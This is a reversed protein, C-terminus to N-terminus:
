SRGSNRRKIFDIIPSVFLYVGLLIFLFLIVGVFSVGPKLLYILGFGFGGFLFSFLYSNVYEKAKESLINTGSLFMVFPVIIFIIGLFLLINGMYARGKVFAEGPNDPNYRVTVESGVIPMTSTSVEDQIKYEEGNVRYTYVGAYTVSTNSSKKKNSRKVIVDVVRGTESLFYKEKQSRERIKMIGFVLLAIGILMVLLFVVNGIKKNKSDEM